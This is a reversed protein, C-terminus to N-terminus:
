GRTWRERLTAIARVYRMRAAAASPLGLREAITEWPLGEDLHLGIVANQAPDLTGLLATLRACDDRLSAAAAPDRVGAPLGLGLETVLREERSRGDARTLHRAKTVLKHRVKTMLWARFAHEGRDEFDPLERLADAFVSQTIDAADYRSQLRAGLGRLAVRDLEARYVAFLDAAAARDGARARRLLDPFTPEGMTSGAARVDHAAVSRRLIVCVGLAGGPRRKRRDAGM